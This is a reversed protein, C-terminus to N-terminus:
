PAGRTSFLPMVLQAQAQEIRRQAIAFYAPDIESGVFRRGLSIAAVGTTGSGMYPDFVLDGPRTYNEVLWKMLAEPKQAPHFKPRGKEGDQLVGNWLYEFSRIPRDQNTWILEGDGYDNPKLGPRKNWFVWGRSAPLRDAYNNAGFLVVVPFSLLPSPDFPEDDGIIPKRNRVTASAQIRGDPSGCVFDVGYPPDSIVAAVAGQLELPSFEMRWDGLRLDVTTM